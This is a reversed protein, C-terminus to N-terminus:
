TLRPLDTDTDTDTQQARGSHRSQTIWSDMEKCQVPRCQAREGHSLKEINVEVRAVSSATALRDDEPNDCM